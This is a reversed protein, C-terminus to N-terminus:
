SFLFVFLMSTNSLVTSSSVLTYKLGANYFYNACFWLMCFTISIKFTEWKTFKVHVITKQLTDSENEGDMPEDSGSSEVCSNEGYSKALQFKSEIIIYSLNQMQNTHSLINAFLMFLLYIIANIRYSYFYRIRVLKSLFTRTSFYTEFGKIKDRM